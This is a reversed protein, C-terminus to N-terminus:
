FAEKVANGAGGYPVGLYDAATAAIDAFTERVGLDM